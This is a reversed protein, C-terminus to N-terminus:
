PWALRGVNAAAQMASHCHLSHLDGAAQVAANLVRAAAPAVVLTSPLMILSQHAIISPQGEGRSVPQQM